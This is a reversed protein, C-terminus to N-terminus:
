KINRPRLIANLFCLDPNSIPQSSYPNWGHDWFQFFDRFILTPTSLQFNTCTGEVGMCFVRIGPKPSKEVKEPTSKEISNRQIEM